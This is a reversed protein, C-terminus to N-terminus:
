SGGLGAFLGSSAPANWPATKGIPRSRDMAQLTPIGHVTLCFMFDPHQREARDYKLRWEKRDGREGEGTM